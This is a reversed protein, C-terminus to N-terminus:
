SANSMPSPSHVTASPSTTPFPGSAAASIPITRCVIRAAAIRSRAGACPGPWRSRPRRGASRPPATRCRPPREDADEPVVLHDDPDRHRPMRRRHDKSAVAGQLPDSTGSCERADEVVRSSASSSSRRAAPSVSTRYVSPTVSSRPASPANPSSPSAATRWPAAPAVAVSITSRISPATSAWPDPSGLSSM